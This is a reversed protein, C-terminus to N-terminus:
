LCYRTVLMSSTRNKIRFLVAVDAIKHSLNRFSFGFSQHATQVQHSTCGMWEVFFGFCRRFCLIETYYSKCKESIAVDEVVISGDEDMMGIELRSNQGVVLINVM